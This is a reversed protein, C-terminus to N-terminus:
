TGVSVAGALALVEEATLDIEVRMNLVDDPVLIQAIDNEDTMGITAHHDAADSVAYRLFNGREDIEVGEQRLVSLGQEAHQRGVPTKDGHRALVPQYRRYRRSAEAEFAGLHDRKPFTLARRV